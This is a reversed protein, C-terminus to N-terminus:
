AYFWEPEIFIFLLWWNVALTLLAQFLLLTSVINSSYLSSTHSEYQKQQADRVNLWVWLTRVDEHTACVNIHPWLRKGCVIYWSQSGFFFFRFWFNLNTNKPLFVILGTQICGSAQFFLLRLSVTQKRNRLLWTQHETPLPPPQTPQEELHALICFDATCVAVTVMAASWVAYKCHPVCRSTKAHTDQPSKWFCFCLVNILNLKKAPFQVAAAFQLFIFFFLFFTYSSFSGM